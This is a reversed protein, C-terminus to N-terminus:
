TAAFIHEITEVHNCRACRFVFLAPLAGLKPINRALTMTESCHPCSPSVPQDVSM